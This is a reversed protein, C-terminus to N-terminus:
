QSKQDSMYFFNVFPVVVTKDVDTKRQLVANGHVIKITAGDWVDTLKHEINLPGNFKTFFAKMAEVGKVPITGFSMEADSVFCDFGGDFELSDIEKYFATMWAPAATKVLIETM